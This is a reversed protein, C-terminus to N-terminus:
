RRYNKWRRISLMLGTYVMLCALLSAIGAATQGIVGFVEGTHLYRIYIRAKLYTSRDDFSNIQVVNGTQTDLYVTFRKQPEGGSGLDVSFRQISMSESSIDFQIEQWYNFLSAVESFLEQQSLSSGVVIPTVSVQSMESKTSLVKKLSDGPWEFSFFFATVIIICLIPSLYLGFINHWQYNRASKSSYSKAFTLKQKLLRKNLHKPLWLYIGSLLLVLFIVNSIGNVWRGSESYNGDLTLWRHFSRLREFFKATKTSTILIEEGSYPNLYAIVKGGDSVQVYANKENRVIMSIRKEHPYGSVIKALEDVSLETLNQHSPEPYDLREAMHIMQREYVLAFGTISMLFIFTAAACGLSLHLWFLM